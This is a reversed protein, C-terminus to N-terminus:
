IDGEEQDKIDLGVEHDLGTNHQRALPPYLPWLDCTRTWQSCLIPVDCDIIRNLIPFHEYCILINSISINRLNSIIRLLLM